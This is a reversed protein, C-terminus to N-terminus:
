AEIWYGMGRRSLIKIKGGSAELKRRLNNITVEVVNSEIDFQTNWVQDLLQYRNHVRGVNQALLALVMFEKQPLDVPQGAVLLRHGVLDLTCKGLQITRGGGNKQFRRSVARIRATLELLTFPKALYDDAGLDLVAAKETSEGLASLVLIGCQPSHKRIVPILKAGDLAGLMRDLIVVELSGKCSEVVELAGQFSDACLPVSGDAALADKLYKLIRKDDEVILVQM